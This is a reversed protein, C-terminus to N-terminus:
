PPRVRTPSAPGRRRSSETPRQSARSFGHVHSTCGEYDCVAYNISPNSGCMPWNSTPKPIDHRACLPSTGPQRLLPRMELGLDKDECAIACHVVSEVFAGCRRAQEHTALQSRFRRLGGTGQGLKSATRERTCTSRGSEQSQSQSDRGSGSSRRGDDGSLRPGTTCSRRCAARLPQSEGDQCRTSTYRCARGLVVRNIPTEPARPTGVGSEPRTAMNLPLLVGTRHYVHPAAAHLACLM